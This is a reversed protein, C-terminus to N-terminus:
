SSRVTNKCKDGVLTLALFFPLGLAFIYVYRLSYAVPTAAMVFLWNAAAPMYAIWLRGKNFLCVVMAAMILWFLTGSGIYVRFHEAKERLPIGTIKEALDVPYIGYENDSIYTDIYGYDNQVGVKWFGHTTLLYSKIYQSPNHVAGKLYVKLFQGKTASLFETDFEEAFKIPDALCPAYLKRWKEEPLLRFLYEKDEEEWEGGYALSAAIQQLPVGVSEAFESEINCWGYVAKTLLLYPLLILATMLLLKKLRTRFCLMLIVCTFLVVYIGNNRLLSAGYSLLALRIWQSREIEGQIVIDALLVSLLLLCCSYLPDKWMIVAYAPFFPMLAEFLLAWVMFIRPVRYQYLKRNVYSLTAAMLLTQVATYAFVGINFSGLREGLKMFLGVFLTYCVPHHNSAPRGAELIQRISALSDELVSGPALALIYPSWAALLLAMSLVFFGKGTLKDKKREPLRQVAYGVGALVLATLLWVGPFILFDRGKLDTIYNETGAARVSGSFVIKRGITWALAFLLSYLNLWLCKKGTRYFQICAKIQQM